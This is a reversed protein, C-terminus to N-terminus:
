NDEVFFQYTQNLGQEFSIRSQWGLLKKAKKIDALSHKIEVVAPGHIPKIKKNSLKLIEKTVQNVSKNQGAGININQGFCDKNKTQSALINVEAVDGVFIFDRTQQGNGNIIPRTGQSISKIFKPILCAYDGKPDQRPGFVNFYRLNITELGYLSNFLKAYDESMLKHLAYPFVPRAKMVEKLPLKKQEGYIAASSSFIFRKSNFKKATELLNLTGNVNVQHTEKPHTISFQVRPLAALHFVIAPKEKKFINNLGDCISKKYVVLNSNNKHQALNEKKGLSFDDLVVVRHGLDLLKDVLHSGIFGAGGTVLCKSM